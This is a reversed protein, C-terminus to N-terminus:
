GGVCSQKSDVANDALACVCVCVCVRAVCNPLIYASGVCVCASQWCARSQYTLYLIYNRSSTGEPFRQKEVDGLVHSLTIDILDVLSHAESITIPLSLDISVQLVEEFVNRSM